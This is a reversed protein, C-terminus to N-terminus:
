GDLSKGEVRAELTGHQLRARIADGRSVADVTRLPRGQADTVVAYGRELPADPNAANLRAELVNRTQTSVTLTSSQLRALREQTNSLRTMGPALAHRAAAALQSHLRDFRRRREAMRVIPTQADLRRELALLTSRRDRAASRATRALADVVVDLSQDRARKIARLHQMLESDLREIRRLFGTRIGGFYEAASSPTEYTFDAVLDSLHVDGAHGIASLVPLNSRVIARVVPELNYQFLDEYSGGGRTLVIVDAALKGAHDIAEGIDIAAGDGQVRTEVFAIEIQPALRRVITQFDEAGKGRASVLAVRQPFAPMPRKRGAEFLGENRFREKFAEFQAYLKGVGSLEVSTVSLQFRSQPAYIGWDGSVIIEDGDKFAPLTRANGAWIVCKLIDAREKLAFYTHGAASVSRESVEGRVRLGM